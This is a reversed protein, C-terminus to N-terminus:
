NKWLGYTRAMNEFSVIKFQQVILMMYKAELTEIARM